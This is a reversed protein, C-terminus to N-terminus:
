NWWYKFWLAIKSALLQMLFQEVATKFLILTVSFRPLDCKEGIKLLVVSHLACLFVTGYLLQVRDKVFMTWVCATIKHIDSIFRIHIEYQVQVFLLFFFTKPFTAVLLITPTKSIHGVRWYIQVICHDRIKWNSHFIINNCFLIFVNWQWASQPLM